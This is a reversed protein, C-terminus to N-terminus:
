TGILKATSVFIVTGTDLHDLTGLQVLPTQDRLLVIVQYRIKEHITHDYASIAVMLYTTSNRDEVTTYFFM